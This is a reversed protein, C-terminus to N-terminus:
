KGAQAEINVLVTEYAHNGKADGARLTIQHAGPTLKSITFDVKEEPADFINDSPLVAQWDSSSDISYEFSAVTSTRDVISARIRATSGAPDAKLDGIVPPTNDVVVPDSVRTSTRGQGPLNALEDSAVVKITYRGDAVNRTEWDFHNETLKDKLLIWPAKSSTRFYLSYQLADGNADEAEWTIPEVTNVPGAKAAPLTPAPNPNDMGNALAANAKGPDNGVKISKIAPALNPLQYAVDVEDVIPSEKGANSSLTLRYQLFRAPPSKIPSFAIAPTEETWNSWGTKDPDQLNGSRTALTLTTDKPLSGQLHIKGFRSIQTADLVPSTFAGSDAFGSSMSAISGVNAMGLLIRGDHTALMSLVEKPDVKALVVTEEAAPDVQYILGDGGTGVLLVGNREIITMVMVPQRFIERVFGETDIRYIANGEAKPKGFDIPEPAAPPAHPNAANVPGPKAPIPHKGPGPAPTPPEPPAPNNPDDGGPDDALHLIKEWANVSYYVPPAHLRSPAFMLAGKPIPNPEGPNPNPEAPPKPNEPPQAPIPVGGTGEPRGGKEKAGEDTGPAGPVAPAKESAEATGAYLNGKADLALASVESEPADFIVFVEKTKRNIRYVLGNPDTGAYLTDKGDSIMSLINNEDSDLIVSKSGDPKIEFIQGNPGTAAYLNGDPTQQIAWVYQVDTETFMEEAKPEKAAPDNIRFIQGKEGGTGMLLRGKNDVQLSFINNMGQPEYIPTVKDDKVRLVVGHPGTGAYVAGDPGEALCYVASIKADQELIKKIARSLKLDGLNTAVVNRFTGKKFDAESTHVWHSTNVALAPVAFALILCPIFARM